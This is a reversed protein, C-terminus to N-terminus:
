KFCKVANAGEKPCSTLIQCSVSNSDLSFSICSQGNLVFTSIDQNEWILHSNFNQNKLNVRSISNTFFLFYLKINKANEKTQKLSGYNLIIFTLKRKLTRSVPLGPLGAPAGVGRVCACVRTYM